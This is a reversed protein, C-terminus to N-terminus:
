LSLLVILNFVMDTTLDGLNAIFLYFIWCGYRHFSGQYAWYLICRSATFFYFNEVNVM